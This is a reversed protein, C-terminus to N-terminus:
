TREGLEDTSVKSRVQNTSIYTIIDTTAHIGFRGHTVKDSPYIMDPRSLCIGHGKDDDVLEIPSALNCRMM